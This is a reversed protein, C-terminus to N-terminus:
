VSRKGPNTVAGLGPGTQDDDFAGTGVPRLQGLMEGLAPDEDRLGRSHRGCPVAALVVDQIRGPDGMSHQPQPEILEAPRTGASRPGRDTHQHGRPVMHGALRNTPKSIKFRLLTLSAGVEGALRNSGTEGFACYPDGLSLPLQHHLHNL